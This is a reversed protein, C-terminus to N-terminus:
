WNAINLLKLIVIEVFIFPTEFLAVTANLKQIVFTRCWCISM